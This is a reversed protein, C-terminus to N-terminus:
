SPVLNLQSLIPSSGTTFEERGLTVGTQGLPAEADADTLVRRAGSLAELSAFAAKAVDDDLLYQNSEALAHRASSLTTAAGAQFDFRARAASIAGATEECCASAQTARRSCSM